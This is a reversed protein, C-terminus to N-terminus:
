YAATNVFPLGFPDDDKRQCYSQGFNKVFKELTLGADDKAYAALDEGDQDFDADFDGPFPIGPGIDFVLDGAGNALTVNHLYDGSDLDYVFLTYGVFGSQFENEALVFYRRCIGDMATAASWDSAGPAAPITTFIIHVGSDPNIRLVTIDDREFNPTLLNNKVSDYTLDYSGYEMDHLTNTLASSDLDYIYLSATDPLTQPSSKFNALVYFRREAANLATQAYGEDYGTLISISAFPNQEGTEPNIRVVRIEAGASYSPYTTLLVDNAPDYTLGDAAYDLNHATRLPAKTPDPDDLDFVYLSSSGPQTSSNFNALLYYLREKNNLEASVWWEDTAPPPQITAFLSQDGTEPDLRVVQIKDNEGLEVGLISGACAINFPM